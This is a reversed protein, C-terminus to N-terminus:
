YNKLILPLYVLYDRPGVVLELEFTNNDPLPDVDNESNSYAQVTNVLVADVEADESVQAVIQFTWSSEPDMRGWSWTVTNTSEDIDDPIWEEDPNWPATARVFTLEAPLIDIITTAPESQGPDTGWPWRNQNGFEVTFTVIEGPRVEGGSLWKEIHIDPGTYATAESVNDETWVDGVVGAEALNTYSDGQEILDLDVNFWLGGSWGPELDPLIWSLTGPGEIIDFGQWFDPGWDGYFSTGVPLTDVIEVGFLPETGVNQFTLDYQIQGEWNWRYDKYIRLNPGDERVAETLCAANDDPFVDGEEVMIEACNTLADGAELASDIALHLDINIWSGPDIEGLDWIVMDAGIYSPVIPGYERGDGSWSEIFSTGAPLTDTLTITGTLNGHNAVHLNYGIEGGPVLVGWGFGKELHANAYPGSTWANDNSHEAYADPAELTVLNVLQTNLECDDEVKLRLVIRDGWQAPLTPATLVLESSDASADTWLDYGNQSYWDVVSTECVAQGEDEVYPLIDTLTAPGSPTTGSNGYEIEYVYTSGPAPDGPTPNKNVQLEVYPETRHITAEAHNNGENPDLDASIDVVNTLEEPAPDPLEVVLYFQGGEGAPVTGLDWEVTGPGPTSPLSSTDEVYAAGSPLTDVLTVSEAVADGDNHYGIWFVARGGPAFQAIGVPQKDVSMDPAPEHFANIVRDGDDPEIYMVGIEELAQIDWEGSWDCLYEPAGLSGATSNEPQAEGPGGWPHCEVDLTIDGFWGAHIPGGITDATLNIVGGIDGVQVTNRYGDDASFIISDGPVIDPPSGGRWNDENTEFGSGDWGGDPTVEADAIGKETGLQDTVTVVFTHGLPYNGGVWDHGYNVRMWPTFFHRRYTVQSYNVMTEFYTVGQAAPPIPDEYVAEYNGDGDTMLQQWGGEWWGRVEVPQDLWGEIRGSVTSAATDIVATFPDPVTFVVPMPPDVGKVEVEIEDGEYVIGTDQIEWCTPCEPMGVTTTFEGGFPTTVTLPQGAVAEGWMNSQGEMTLFLEVRDIAPIVILDDDFNDDPNMDFEPSTIEIVNLFEAPKAEPDVVEVTFDFWGSEGPQLDDIEFVWQGPYSAVNTKGQLHEPVGPDGAASTNQPYTDIIVVGPAPLDGLNAAFFWYYINDGNWQSWKEVHLNVGSPYLQVAAWSENDWPTDEDEDHGIEARNELTTGTPAAADARVAFSLDGGTAVAVTGLDWVLEQGDITPEDFPEGNLWTSDDVYTLGVPLTDTLFANAAVNGQNWFNIGYEFTGGQVLEGGNFQKRIALDARPPSVHADTNLQYDNGPEGDGDVHIEVENTLTTSIETTTEMELVIFLEQCWGGPVGPAELEVADDNASIENWFSQGPQALDWRLFSVGDPLTDILTVPGVAVTSHNCWGISYQFEEGPTPDGPQPNKGVEVDVAVQPIVDLPGSSNENNAQDLDDLIPAIAVQNPPISTFPLADIPIGVTVWFLGNQGPELTGIEWTVTGAIDDYTEPFDTTDGLYITGPPLVDTILVDHAAATVLDGMNGYRIGLVAVGGPQVPTGEVMNWTSVQLDYQDVETSARSSPGQAAVAYGGVVILGLALLTVVAALSAWRWHHHQKLESM